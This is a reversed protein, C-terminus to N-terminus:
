QRRRRFEVYSVSIFHYAIVIWILFLVGGPTLSRASIMSVAQEALMLLSVISMSVNFTLTDFLESIKAM